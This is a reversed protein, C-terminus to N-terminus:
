IRWRSNNNIQGKLFDSMSEREEFQNDPKINKKKFFTQKNAGINKSQNEFINDMEEIKFHEVAYPYIEQAFKDMILLDEVPATTVNVRQKLFSLWLNLHKDIAEYIEKTDKYNVIKVSKGEKYLDIMKCIPMQTVYWRTLLNHDIEKSGTIPTGFIKIYDESTNELLNLRVRYYYDTLLKVTDTENM